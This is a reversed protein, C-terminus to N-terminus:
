GRGRILWIATAGSLGVLLTIGAIAAVRRRVERTVEPQVQMAGRYAQQAVLKALDDVLPEVRARPPSWCIESTIPTAPFCIKESTIRTIVRERYDENTDFTLVEGFTMM